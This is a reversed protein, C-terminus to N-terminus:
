SCKAEKNKEILIKNCHLMGAMQMCRDWKCLGQSHKLWKCTNVLDRFTLPKM